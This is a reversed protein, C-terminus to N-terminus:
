FTPCDTLLQGATAYQDHHVAICSSSIRAPQTSYSLVPCASRRIVEYARTRLEGFTGQARGRGIVVLDAGWIHATEAVADPLATGEVSVPFDTGSERQLKALEVRASDMMYAHLNFDFYKEPRTQLEPVSHVLRVSAGMDRALESTFRLLPAAESDLELACLINRIGTTRPEQSSLNCDTWVPCNVDHMVRATVSGILVHHLRGHGHSGMMILDTDHTNAWNAIHWAPSGEAFVRDVQEKPLDLAFNKLREYASNMLQTLCGGGVFSAEGAMCWTAPIEFVHLLTVESGFKRALMEVETKVALSHESFDTPFLIRDFKM